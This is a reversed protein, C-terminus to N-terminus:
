RVQLLEALASVLRDLDSEDNYPGISVRLLRHGAWEYAPAEVRYEEYLRRWLAHPNRSRLEVARMFLAPEGRIRPLGLKALQAEAIPFPWPALVREGEARFAAVGKSTFRGQRVWDDMKEEDKWRWSGSAIQRDDDHVVRVPFEAYTRGCWSERWLVEDGLRWRM